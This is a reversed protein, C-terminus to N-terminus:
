RAFRGVNKSQGTSPDTLQAIDQICVPIGEMTLNIVIGVFRSLQWHTRVTAEQDMAMVLM